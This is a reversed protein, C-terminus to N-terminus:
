LTSYNYHSLDFSLTHISFSGQKVSDPTCATIPQMYNTTPVTLAEITTTGKQLQQTLINIISSSACRMTEM